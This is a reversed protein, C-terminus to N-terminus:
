QLDGFYIKALRIIGLMFDKEFVKSRKEWLFAKM